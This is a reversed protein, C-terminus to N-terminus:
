CKKEEEIKFTTFTGDCDGCIYHESSYPFDKEMFYLKGKCSPCKYQKKIYNYIDEALDRAKSYSLYKECLHCIKTFNNNM